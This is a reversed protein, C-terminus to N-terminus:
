KNLLEICKDIERVMEDIQKKVDSNGETQKISDAILISRNNKKLEKILNTQNEITQILEAQKKILKNNEKELSQLSTVLKKVKNRIAPILEKVGSM